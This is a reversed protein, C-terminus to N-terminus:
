KTTKKESFMHTQPKGLHNLTALGSYKLKIVLVHMAFACIQEPSSDESGWLPVTAQPLSSFVCVCM